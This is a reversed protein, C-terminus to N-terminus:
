NFPNKSKIIKKELINRREKLIKEDKYRLVSDM